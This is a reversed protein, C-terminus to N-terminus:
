EEVRAQEAHELDLLRQLAEVQTIELYDGTMLRVEAGQALSSDLWPWLLELGSDQVFALIALQEERSADFWTTVQRRTIVLTHGPSVPYRDRIAFALGNSAVWESAPVELFPSRPCPTVRGTHGRPSAPWLSSFNWPFDMGAVGAIRAAGHRSPWPGSFRAVGRLELPDPDVRESSAARVASM